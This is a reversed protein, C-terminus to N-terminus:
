HYQEYDVRFADGDKCEFTVCWPGNVHLTYRAPNMGKLRHFDFGPVQLAELHPAKNLADSAGTCASISGRRGTARGFSPLVQLRSRWPRRMGRCARIERPSISRM